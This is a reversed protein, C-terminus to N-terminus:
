DGRFGGGGGTLGPIRLGGGTSPSQTTTSSQSGAAIIRTVVNDGENLGATIETMTSNSLGTEVAQNRPASALVVGSSNPGSSNSINGEAVQVYSTGGQQKIAANPVLIVNQIADTIIAASVSMGPKVRDDETDWAIKVNYTVVGQSVTGITDIEMVSGTISLGDIADFTLTVKQGVKAKAVDVENLTITAIQQKTLLTAVISGSSLSDGKKNTIKTVVGDFPARIYYDVLNNKADLLANERQQISLEQSQIDLPDPGAELKVLAQTKEEISTDASIISDKDNQITTKINLLNSLHANTEGTYNNLTSLHTDAISNPKLQQTTLTDEYFQILNNLSKVAEAINKTTDYTESVLSEITSTDSFRSAAKYDSFNKDYVTRASQYNDLANQAYLTGKSYTYVNITDKYYYINQKSPSFANGYILNDLGTMVSPLDLFANSVTNFGDDYAKKLADASDQKSNNAQTLADQAQLISLADVPQKLKDLALKASALNVEADRVAKQADTDDLRFLVSGTKVQDGNKVNISVIDGSVKPKIDVQTTASVQGTGSVSVVLTGKEAKALVYKPVAVSKNFYAQYGYYGGGLILVALVISAVKHSRIKAFIGNM